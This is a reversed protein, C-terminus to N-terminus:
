LEADPSKWNKSLVQRLVVPSAGGAEAYEM